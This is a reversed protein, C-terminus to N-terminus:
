DRLNSNSYAKYIQLHYRVSLSNTQSSHDLAARMRPLVKHRNRTVSRVIAVNLIFVTHSLRTLLKLAKLFIMVSVWCDKSLTLLHMSTEGDAGRVSFLEFTFLGTRLLRQPSLKPGCPSLTRPAIKKIKIEKINRQYCVTRWDKADSSKAYMEWASERKRFKAIIYYCASIHNDRQRIKKWRPRSNM